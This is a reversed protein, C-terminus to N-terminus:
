QALHKALRKALALLTLTPPLGWETPIVSCDCVYLHEYSTQLDSDVLEGIRVSGGPHAATWASHYISRAGAHALIDKAREYGRQMKWKDERSFTKRLGGSPTIRGGLHDKIKVMMSVTRRHQHLRHLRLAQATFLQYVLKPVTIDTLIYGEEPVEMGAAMPIENGAEIGDMTGHVLVLPDCFFGEGAGEVGSRRLIQVSAIGGASCVINKAYTTRVERNVEYTIGVARGGVIIVKTVDAGNILEAGAAVAERVYNLASWQSEYPFHGPSCQSQDIFKDLKRWPYGLELASDMVARAAPGVLDDRLPAIPLERKLEALEEGLSIGYRVFVDEPPEYSTGYYLVSAGGTRIGRVLTRGGNMFMMERNKLMRPIHISTDWGGKELMLVKKNKLALERAVTAGSPGTGIVIVDYEKSPGSM